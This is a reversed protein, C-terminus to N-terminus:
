IDNSKLVPNGSTGARKRVSSARGMSWNEAWRLDIM